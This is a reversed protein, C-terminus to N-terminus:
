KKPHRERYMRILWEDVYMIVLFLITAIFPHPSSLHYILFVAIVLIIYKIVTQHKKLFDKM